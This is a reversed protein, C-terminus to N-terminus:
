RTAQGDDPGASSASVEARRRELLFAGVSGALTAFVVVSFAALVVDLMRGIGTLTTPEGTITAMAARYLAEGYTAVDGYEFLLQSSALIVIATVTGLWAIRGRFTRGATRTARVASSVIRGARATGLTRLAPLARFARLFPLVLFVVQYWNRRLFDTRSPAVFLRLVFEGIFVALLLWTAVQFATGLAGRPEVVTEALVLLGFVIGLATMPLDLTGALQEALEEREEDSRDRIRRDDVPDPRDAM